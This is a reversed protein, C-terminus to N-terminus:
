SDKKNERGSEILIMWLFIWQKTTSAVYKSGGATYVRGLFDSVVGSLLFDM